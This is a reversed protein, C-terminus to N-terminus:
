LNSDTRVTFGRYFYNEQFATEKSPTSFKVTTNRGVSQAGLRDFYRVALILHYSSKNVLRANIPRLLISALKGSSLNALHMIFPPLRRLFALALCFNEVAVVVAASRDGDGERYRCAHLNNAATEDCYKKYSRGGDFLSKMRRYQQFGTSFISM